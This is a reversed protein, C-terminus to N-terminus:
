GYFKGSVGSEVMRRDEPGDRVGDSGALEGNTCIASILFKHNACVPVKAPALTQWQRMRNDFFRPEAGPPVETRKWVVQTTQSRGSLLFGPTSRRARGDM